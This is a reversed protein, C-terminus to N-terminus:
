KGTMFTALSYRHGSEIPGVSHLLHAAYVILTGRKQWTKPLDTEFFPINLGPGTYDKTPDSLQVIATLKRNLFRNMEKSVNKQYFHKDVYGGDSHLSRFGGKMYKVMYAPDPFRCDTFGFNNKNAELIASRLRLLLEKNTHESLIYNIADIRYDANDGTAFDTWEIKEVRNQLDIIERCEKATFFNPIVVVPKIFKAKTPEKRNIKM